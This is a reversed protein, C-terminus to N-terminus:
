SCNVQKSENQRDPDNFFNNNNSIIEYVDM